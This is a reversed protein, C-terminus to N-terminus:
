NIYNVNENFEYKYLEKAYNKASARAHILKNKTKIKKVM